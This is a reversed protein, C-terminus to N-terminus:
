NVFSQQWILEPHKLLKLRKLKTLIAPTFPAESCPGSWHVLRTTKTWVLNFWLETWKCHSFVKQFTWVPFQSASHFFFFHFLLSCSCHSCFVFHKVTIQYCLSHLLSYPLLMFLRSAIVYKRLPHFLYSIPPPLTIGLIFTHFTIGDSFYCSVKKGGFHWRHCCSIM